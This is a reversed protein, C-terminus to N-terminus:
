LTHRLLDQWSELIDLPTPPLREIMDRAFGRVTESAESSLYDVPSKGDVRALLMAALLSATRTHLTDLAEWQVHFEYASLFGVFCTAYSGMYAPRAVMKLLWHTCPFAVDFAPDGFWACEADLLIPGDAGCLINKPSVDGHILVRRTNATREVMENLRPSLDAHRAGLARFYPDLRLADFLDDSAFSAAVAPSNATAAHMKGVVHGLASAIRADVRGALLENRWNPFADPPFYEMGILHREADYGLVRPVAHPVVGQALQLWRYEFLSREIPVDWRRTVRLTALAQKVCAVGRPGQVKFVDSSVGGSLPQLTLDSPAGIGLRSAFDAIAQCNPEPPSSM